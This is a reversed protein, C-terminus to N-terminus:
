KDDTKNDKGVINETKESIVSILADGLIIWLFNESEDFKYSDNGLLVQSIFKKRDPKNKLGDIYADFDSGFSLKLNKDYYEKCCNYIEGKNKIERFIANEKESLQNEIEACFCYYALSSKDTKATFIEKLGDKAEKEIEEITETGSYGSIDTNSDPAETESNEAKKSSIKGTKFDIRFALNLAIILLKYGGNRFNCLLDTEKEDFNVGNLKESLYIRPELSCCWEETISNIRTYIDKSSPAKKMGFQWNRLKPIIGQMIERKAKYDNYQRFLILMYERTFGELKSKEDDSNKKEIYKKKARLSVAENYNNVLEAFKKVKGFDDKSVDPMECEGLYEKVVSVTDASERGSTNKQKKFGKETAEFKKIMTYYPLAYLNPLKSAKDPVIIGEDKYKLPYNKSIDAEDITNEGKSLINKIRNKWSIFYDESALALNESLAPRVGTKASDIEQGLILFLKEVAESTYPVILERNMVEERLKDEDFAENKDKLEKISRKLLRNRIKKEESLKYKKNQGISNENYAHVAHKFAYNSYLGVKNGFTLSIMKFVAEDIDDKEFDTEIPKNHPIAEFNYESWEKYKPMAKNYYKDRVLKVIDGDYDAGSLHEAISPLMIEKGKANKKFRGTEDDKIKISESNIMLVGSLHSLYRHRESKEKNEDKIELRKLGILEKSSVHPNRLVACETEFRIDAGPAYFRRHNLKDEAQIDNANLGFVYYLFYLLDGSLYLNYGNVKFSGIGYSKLVAEAMNDYYKMVKRCGKFKPNLTLAKIINKDRRSFTQETIDIDKDEETEGLAEENIDEYDTNEANKLVAEGNILKNYLEATPEGIKLFAVCDLKPTSLVQWNLNIQGTHAKNFGTVYVAHRYKSFKHFYYGLPCNKYKNDNETAEDLWAKGKFMSETLIVHVDEATHETGWCDKISAVGKEKAFAHFDVEHLMGKVYPMRIQFSSPVANGNRRDYSLCDRLYGAYESSIIGEGDFLNSDGGYKDDIVVVNKESLVAENSFSIRTGGSLMLGNYAYWKSLNAKKPAIDLRLRGELKEKLLSNIFSLKKERAMSGSREFREYKVRDENKDGYSLTFGHKLLARMEASFNLASEENEASIDLDKFDVYIIDKIINEDAGKDCASLKIGNEEKLLKIQYFLPNEKILGSNGNLLYNTDNKNFLFNDKNDKKKNSFGSLKFIGEAKITMIKYLCANTNEM